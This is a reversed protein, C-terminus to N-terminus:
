AGAEVFSLLAAGALRRVEDVELVLLEEGEGTQVLPFM